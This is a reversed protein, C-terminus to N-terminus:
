GALDFAEGIGSVAPEREGEWESGIVGEALDVGEGMLDAEEGVFGCRVGEGDGEARGSGGGEARRTRSGVSAQL